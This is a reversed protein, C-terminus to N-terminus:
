WVNERFGSALWDGSMYITRAKRANAPGRPMEKLQMVIIWLDGVTPDLNTSHKSPGLTLLKHERIANKPIFYGSIAVYYLAEIPIEWLPVKTPTCGVIM